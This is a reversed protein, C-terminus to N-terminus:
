LGAIAIVHCFPVWLRSACRGHCWAHSLNRLTHQVSIHFLHIAPKQCILHTAQLGGGRGYFSSVLISLPQRMRM